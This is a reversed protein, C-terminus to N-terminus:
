EGKVAYAEFTDGLQLLRSAADIFRFAAPSRDAARGLLGPFREPHHGTLRVRRLELGYRALLKRLGQPSLVTFHDSPSARLFETLDTRASIGRGNPTSFAFVGGTPLLAAAKRLVLELDAFHEIVYWLTVAAIRRPLASRGVTEFSACLAPIGLRKRVYSVAGQSVDLGYCPLGAERAADLFPGYACGVDVVAGDTTRPLLEKITAVRPRCASKISEFDDLYTRGYQAKYDAFFYRTGYSKKEGSFSELTITGCGSCRRYTREAFRAIVRNGDTGCGPCSPTGQATLSTLLRVLRETRDKGIAENFADVPEMLAAPADLLSLFTRMDPTLTGISPFGSAVGLDHHYHSPNLLVVPVGTALAVFATIGFHTILLDHAAILPRLDSAGRVIHVSEPWEQRKFLPGEVVTIREPPFVKANLLVDLLRGSLDQVDEGGFSILLTRPLSPRATRSRRPLDLFAPSSLNAARAGPLGPIADILFSAYHAAEGGEDLCVLLGHRMLSEAEARTSSRADVIILDWREAAGLHTIIAPRGRAPLRALAESLIKRSASDMRSTLFAVRPGLKEALGICRSLHGMGDGSGAVPVLLFSRTKAPM